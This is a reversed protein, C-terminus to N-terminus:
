GILAEIERSERVLEAILRRMNAWERSRMGHRWSPHASGAAHGGGAGHFRCVRWGAVAPAQCPQGTRKSHAHCRPAEHARSMHNDDDKMQM